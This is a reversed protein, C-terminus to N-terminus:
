GHPHNLIRPDDEGIDNCQKGLCPATAVLLVAGLIVAGGVVTIATLQETRFGASWLTAFVPELCYIVCATAPSVDPQYVNMLHLAVVSGVVILAGMSAVFVRDGMLGVVVKAEYM